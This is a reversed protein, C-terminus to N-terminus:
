RSAGIQPPREVLRAIEGREFGGGLAKILNIAATLRAGQVEIAARENALAATQSNVVQLYTTLGGEYQSMALRLASKSATVARAQAEAETELWRLASLSDEVDKVAELVTQRYQAVEAEYGAWAADSEALRRGGEFLSLAASPGVSWSYLTPGRWDLAQRIFDGGLSISPFWAARALGIEQNAAAVRREASAVDPRRELLAAPLERPASPVQAALPARQLSFTSPMEGVLIALGHELEARRRKLAALQAEASALQTQAQDFDVQTVMGGRYQSGTLEVARRYAKLTDEYLRIQGDTMRLEFFTQALEAQLALRMTAFDAASAEAQAKAGELGPLANWFGIEWQASVGFSYRGSSATTESGGRTFSGPASLGPFLASRAISVQARARRLNAAAIVMNQNAQGLRDMLDDLGSDVFVRWWPGREGADAPAASKWGNEEKYAPPMRGGPVGPERYAPSLNVCGGCSLAWLFLCFIQATSKM